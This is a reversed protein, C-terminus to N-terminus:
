RKQSVAAQDGTDGRRAGLALRVGIERRRETVAVLMINMIGVGAIVLSVAGIALLTFNLTRETEARMEIVELPRQIEFDNEADPALRHRFRLISTAQLEASPMVEPSTVGCMIDNVYEQRDLNRHATTFPVFVVDDRDVGGRSAGRPELVGLIRFPFAGMRIVRGVPDETGFLREAAASGLVMVRSARTLDIDAFFTGRMLTRRRIEFFEPRVGQYRTNWNSGGAVLQERGQVLPSCAVIEPVSTVLAAADDATLTRAGGWGTRLGAINRSGPRIWLFDEGMGDIQAQVERASAAGIAATCIVTAIGISIALISLGTRLTNRALSAFATRLITLRM